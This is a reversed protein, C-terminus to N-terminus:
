TYGSGHKDRALGDVDGVGVGVQSEVRTEIFLRTEEGTGDKTHRHQVLFSLGDADALDQVLAAAGEIGFVFFAETSECGLNGNTHVIFHTSQVTQTWNKCASRLKQKTSSLTKRHASKQLVTHPICVPARARRM